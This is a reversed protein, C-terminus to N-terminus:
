HGRTKHMGLRSKEWKRYWGNEQDRTKVMSVDIEKEIFLREQVFEESQIQGKWEM